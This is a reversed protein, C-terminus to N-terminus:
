LEELSLMFLQMQFLRFRSVAMVDAIAHFHELALNSMQDALLEWDRRDHPRLGLNLMFHIVAIFLDQFNM